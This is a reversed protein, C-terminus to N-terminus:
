YRRSLKLLEDQQRQLSDLRAQLEVALQDFERRLNAFETPSASASKLGDEFTKSLEGVANLLASEFPTLQPHSM